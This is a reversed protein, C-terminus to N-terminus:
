QSVTLTSTESQSFPDPMSKRLGKGVKLKGNLFDQVWARINVATLESFEPVFKKMDQGQGVTFIRATPVSDDTVLFFELM